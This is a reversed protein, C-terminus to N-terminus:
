EGQSISDGVVMVTIVGQRPKIVTTNANQTASTPNVEQAHAYPCASGNSAQINTLPPHVSVQNQTTGPWSADLFPQLPKLINTTANASTSINTSSASLNSALIAAAPSFAVFVSLLFLRM